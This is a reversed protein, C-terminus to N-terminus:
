RKLFLKHVFAVALIMFGLAYGAVILLAYWRFGYQYGFTSELYSSVTTTPPLGPGRLPNHNNGLQSAGLGYIMWTAPVIKHMWKWGNPISSEVITFGASLSNLSRSVYWQNSVM